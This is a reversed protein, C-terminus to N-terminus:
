KLDYASLSGFIVFLMIVYSAGPFDIFMFCIDSALFVGDNVDYFFYLSKAILDGTLRLFGPIIMAFILRISGPHFNQNAELFNQIIPHRSDESLNTIITKLRDYLILSLFLVAGWGFWLLVIHLRFLDSLGSSIGPLGTIMSDLFPYALSFLIIIIPPAIFSVSLRKKLSLM